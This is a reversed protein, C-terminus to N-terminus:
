SDPRQCFLYDRNGTLIKGLCTTERPRTRRSVISSLRSRCSSRLSSYKTLEGRMILNLRFMGLGIGSSVVQFILTIFVLFDDIAFKSGIVLWRAYFRLAVAVIQLPIFFGLFTELKWGIYAPSSLADAMNVICYTQFNEQLKSLECTAVLSYLSLFIINLLKKPPIAIIREQSFVEM